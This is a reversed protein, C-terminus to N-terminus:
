ASQLLKVDRELQDVKNIVYRIQIDHLNQKDLLPIAANVRDIINMHNEALIHIDRKVDNEIMLELDTVKQHLNNMDQKLDTIEQKLEVVDKTIEQKFGTMEQKFETMEQKFETMDSEVHILRDNMSRMLHYMETFLEDNM